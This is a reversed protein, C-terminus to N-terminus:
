PDVGIMGVDNKQDAILASQYGHVAPGRPTGPVVLGRRLEIVDCDGVAERIPNASSLLLTARDADGTAAVVSLNCKALPMRDADNFISIYRGIRQIRVHDVSAAPGFDRLEM